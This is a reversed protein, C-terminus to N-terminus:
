PRALALLQQQATDIDALRVPGSQAILAEIEDFENPPLRQQIREYVPQDAGQLAHVLLRQEARILLRDLATDDLKLLYNLGTLQEEVRDHLTQDARQMVKLLDLELEDDLHRFIDAVVRSGNMAASQIGASANIKQAVINNLEEVAYDQVSSLMGIRVIVEQRVHDSMLTLVEAAHVADLYALVIGQVQPHENSIVALVSAADLWKLDDLASAESHAFGQDGARERVKSVAMMERVYANAGRGVDTLQGLETTCRNLADNLQDVSVPGLKSMRKGISMVQRPGLYKLVRGADRKGISMLLVAAQQLSEEDTRNSKTYETV